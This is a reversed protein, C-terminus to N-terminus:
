GAAGSRYGVITSGHGTGALVRSTGGPGCNAALGGSGARRSPHLPLSLATEPVHSAPAPRLHLAVASQELRLLPLTTAPRDVLAQLSTRELTSGSQGSDRYVGAITWGERQCFDTLIETQFEPSYGDRVQAASSVRVYLAARTV